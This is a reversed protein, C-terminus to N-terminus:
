PGSKSPDKAPIKQHHSSKNRKKTYRKSTAVKAPTRQGNKSHLVMDPWRKCMQCYIAVDLWVNHIQDYRAMDILIDGYRTLDQM